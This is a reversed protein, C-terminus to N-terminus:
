AELYGIMFAEELATIEDDDHFADLGEQTYFDDETQLRTQM